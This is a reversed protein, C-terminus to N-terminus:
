GRFRSYLRSAVRMAIGTPTFIPYRLFMFDRALGRWGFPQGYGGRRLVSRRFLRRNFMLLTLGLLFPFRGYRRRRRFM